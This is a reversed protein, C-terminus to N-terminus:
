PQEDEYVRQKAHLYETAGEGALFHGCNSLIVVRKHMRKEHYELDHCYLIPVIYLSLGDQRSYSM